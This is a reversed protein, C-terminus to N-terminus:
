YYPDNSDDDDDFYSDDGYDEISRMEEYEDLSMNRYEDDRNEWEDYYEYEDRPDYMTKVGKVDCPM